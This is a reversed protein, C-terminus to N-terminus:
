AQLSETQPDSLLYEVTTDLIRAFIKVEYDAVFRSGRELKVIATETIKDYGELQAKIALQAQTLHKAKRLERIRIGCVNKRNDNYWFSKMSYGTKSLIYYLTTLKIIYETCSTFISTLCSKRYFHKVLM